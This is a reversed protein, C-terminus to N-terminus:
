FIGSFFHDSPPYTGRQKILHFFSYNWIPSIIFIPSSSSNIPLYQLTIELTESDTCHPIRTRLSMMEIIRDLVKKVDEFEFLSM